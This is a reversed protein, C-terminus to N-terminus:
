LHTFHTTVPTYFATGTASGFMSPRMLSTRNVGWFVCRSYKGDPVSKPAASPKFM